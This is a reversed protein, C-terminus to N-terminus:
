MLKIPKSMTLKLLVSKINNKEGPLAHLIQDFVHLLNDTVEEDKMSESGVCTQILPRDGTSVRITKALKEQLPKLNFKPPVVCGVKPNPMKKRPGLVKGFTAAVKPMINAQAVFFDYEEALKKVKKQDKTYQEFDKEEIAFDCNEKADAALEPGILACVKNPKGKGHTLTSFLNVQNDTKKMDISKLNIIVDFTQSFKRKKSGERLEQLVKTINEKNM